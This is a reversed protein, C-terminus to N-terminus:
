RYILRLLLTGTGILGLFYLYFRVFYGMKRRGSLLALTAPIFAVMTLCNWLGHLLTKGSPLPDEKFSASAAARSALMSFAAYFFIAAFAAFLDGLKLLRIKLPPSHTMWLDDGFDRSLANIDIQTFDEVGFGRRGLWFPRMIEDLDPRGMFGGAPGLTGSLYRVSSARRLSGPLKPKVHGVVLLSIPIRREGYVSTPKLPFYVKETPFSVFVSLLSGQAQSAYSVVFSYDKGVYADMVAMSDKPLDLGKESLYLYLAERSRTTVLETTLGMKRVRRHIVVGGGLSSPGGASHVDGLYGWPAGRSTFFVVSIPLNLPFTSWLGMGAFVELLGSRFENEIDYGFFESGGARIDIEVKEPGSPIPFIWVTSGGQIDKDLDIALLLAERGKYFHIIASQAKEGLLSWSEMLPGRYHAMGDAFAPATFWVALALSAAAKKM